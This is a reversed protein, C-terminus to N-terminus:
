IEMSYINKNEGSTNIYEGNETAFLMKEGDNKYLLQVEEFTSVDAYALVNAMKTVSELHSDRLMEIRSSFAATKEELSSVREDMISKDLGRYSNVASLIFLLIFVVLIASTIVLLGKRRKDTDTKM